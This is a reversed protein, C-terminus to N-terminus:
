AISTGTDARAQSREMGQATRTAIDYIGRRVSGVVKRGVRNAIFAVIASVIVTGIIGAILLPFGSLGFVTSGAAAAIGQTGSLGGGAALAKAAMVAATSPTGVELLLDNSEKIEDENLIGKSIALFDLSENQVQQKQQIVKAKKSIDSIKKDAQVLTQEPAYKLIKRILSVKGKRDKPAEGFLQDIAKKEEETKAKSSATSVAKSIIKDLMKDPLFKVSM